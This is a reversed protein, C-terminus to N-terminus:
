LPGPKFFFNSHGRDLKLAYHGANEDGRKGIFSMLGGRGQICLILLTAGITALLWYDAKNGGDYRRHDNDYNASCCCATNYVMPATFVAVIASCM